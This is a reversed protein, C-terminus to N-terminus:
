RALIHYRRLSVHAKEDFDTAKFLTATERITHRFVATESMNEVDLTVAGLIGFEGTSMQGDGALAQTLEKGRV